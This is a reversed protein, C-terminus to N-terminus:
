VIVMIVIGKVTVVLGREGIGDDSRVSGKGWVSGRGCSSGGGWGTVLVVVAVLGGVVVAVIVVSLEVVVVVVQVGLETVVAALSVIIVVVLIVVGVMVDLVAEQWYKKGQWKRWCVLVEIVSEFVSVGVVAVTSVM